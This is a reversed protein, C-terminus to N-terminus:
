VYESLSSNWTDSLNLEPLFYDEQIQDFYFEQFAGYGACEGVKDVGVLVWRDKQWQYALTDILSVSGNCKIHLYQIQIKYRTIHVACVDRYGESVKSLKWKEGLKSYDPPPVVFEGTIEDMGYKYRIKRIEDGYSEFFRYIGKYGDSVPTAYGQVHLAPSILCDELFRRASPYYYFLETLEPNKSIIDDRDRICM